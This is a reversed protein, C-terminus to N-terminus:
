RSQRQLIFDRVDGVWETSGRAFEIWSRPIAPVIRLEDSGWFADGIDQALSRLDVSPAFEKALGLLYAALLAEEPLDARLLGFLNERDGADFRTIFMEVNSGGPLRHAPHALIAANPLEAVIPAYSMILGNPERSMFIMMTNPHDRAHALWPRPSGATHVFVLEDSDAISELGLSRAAFNHDLFFRSIADPSKGLDAHNYFAKTM